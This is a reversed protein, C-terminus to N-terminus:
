NITRDGRAQWWNKLVAAMENVTEDGRLQGDYSDLGMSAYLNAFANQMDAFTVDTRLEAVLLEFRENMLEQESATGADFERQVQQTIRRQVGLYAESAHYEKHLSQYRARSVMVQTAVAQTLALARADLLEGGAEINRRREPLRALQLLNWSVRAGTTVWDDNELLDNDSFNTGVFVQLGPIAELTAIPNEQENRRQRYTIERLEPRNVMASLIMDDRGMELHSRHRGRTPMAVRYDSGIPLNMLAALQRKAVSLDRSLQELSQQDELLDRQFELQQRPNAEESAVLRDSRRLAREGQAKLDRVRHLLRQASVVRWYASRTDEIVRNTAARRQELAILVDDARQLSRNYSIGFDLVDWTLTLDGDFEDRETSRTATTSVTGTDLNVSRSGPDNNRSTYEASAVLDPLMDYDALRLERSRLAEEKLEVQRDLNYKIARAMAEYLSITGTVPEQDPSVVDALRGQAISLLEQDSLPEPQIDCAAVLASTVIVGFIRGFGRVMNTQGIQGM